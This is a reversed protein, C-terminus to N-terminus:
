VMPIKNPVTLCKTTIILGELAIFSFQCFTITNGAGPDVRPSFFVM